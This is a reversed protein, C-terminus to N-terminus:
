NELFLINQGFFYTKLTKRSLRFATMIKQLSTTLTSFIQNSHGNAVWQDTQLLTGRRVRSINSWQRGQSINPVTKVSWHGLKQDVRYEANNVDNFNNMNITENHKVILPQRVTYKIFLSRDQSISAVYYEGTIMWRHDSVQAETTFCYLKTGPLCHHREAAPFTVTPRAYVSEHHLSRWHLDTFAAELRSPARCIEHNTDWKSSEIMRREWCGVIM